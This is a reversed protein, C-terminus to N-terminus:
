RPSIWLYLFIFTHKFLPLSLSISLKHRCCTTWLACTCAFWFLFLSRSLAHNATFSCLTLLLAAPLLNALLMNSSCRAYCLRVLFWYFLFACVCMCVNTCTLNVTVTPLWCGFLTASTLPDSESNRVLECCIYLFVFGSQRTCCNWDSCRPSCTTKRSVVSTAYIYSLNQRTKLSWTLLVISGFLLLIFLICINLALM